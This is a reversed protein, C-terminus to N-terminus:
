WGMLKKNFMGVEASIDCHDLSAVDLGSDRADQRRRPDEAAKGNVGLLSHTFEVTDRQRQTKVKLVCQDPEAARLLQGQEASVSEKSTKDVETSDTAPEAVDTSSSAQKNHDIFPFSSGVQECVVQGRGHSALKSAGM